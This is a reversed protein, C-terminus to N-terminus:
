DGLVSSLAGGLLSQSQGSADRQAAATGAVEDEGPDAVAGMALRLVRRTATEVADSSRHGATRERLADEVATADATDAGADALASATAAGLLDTVADAGEDEPVAALVEEVSPLADASAAGASAPAAGPGQPDHVVPDLGLAEYLETMTPDYADLDTEVTGAASAKVFYGTFASRVADDDGIQSRPPTLDRAEVTEIEATGAEFVADDGYAPACVVNWGEEVRIEGLSKDRLGPPTDSKRQFDLVARVGSDPTVRFASLSDLQALEGVGTVDQWKGAKANWFEATGDFGPFQEGLLDWLTDDTAGPIGLSHAVGPDLYLDTGIATPADREVEGPPATLFPDYAVEGDVIPEDYGRDGLYNLRADFPGSPAGFGDSPSGQFPLDADSLDNFRVTAADADMGLFGGDYFVGVDAAVVNDEFATFDGFLRLGNTVDRVDNDRVHVPQEGFGFDGVRVGTHAGRVTNDEVVAAVSDLFVGRGPFLPDDVDLDPGTIDNNRVVCDAGGDFPGFILVGADYADNFTIECDTVTVDTANEVYVGALGFVEDPEELTLGTVTVDEVPGGFFDTAVGGPTDVATFNEVTVDSVDEDLFVGSTGGAAADRVTTGSVGPNIRIGQGIHHTEGDRVNATLGEITVDDADVIVANAVILDDPALVLPDAGEAARVTLGPTDVHVGARFGSDSEEQYTGDAVIIEEGPVALEVADNIREVEGPVSLPPDYVSTPGTTVATTVSGEVDCNVFEVDLALLGVADAATEAAIAIEDTLPEDFSVTEGPAVTEGDVSLTVEGAELTSSEALDVTVSELEEVAALTSATAGPDVRRQQTELLVVPPTDAAFEVANGLLTTAEDTLLNRTVQVSLGLSAALVTRGLDDVALGAGSPLGGAAVDALTVADFEGDYEEFFTHFGSFFLLPAPTYLEVFDSLGDVIPHDEGVDYTVPVAVPVDVFADAVTEPDGTAASLQAIAESDAGFQDLYVVGTQPLRTAEAFDAVLEDDGGFNQAVYADHADNEVADLLDDPAVVEPRFRPPLEAELLAVLDAGFGGEAADVVGVEVPGEFVATPGTTVELTEGLGEFDLDLALDGEGDPGTEVTLTVTGSLAADFSVREGVPVAVGDAPLSAGALSLSVDGDHDGGREVTLAELNAVRFEVDFSEGAQIGEPQGGTVDVALADALAFDRTVFGDPVAVTTSRTAFGFAEVSLEYEGPTARLRYRGDAGTEDPFGSLSVTAGPVPNGDGDTVVGTVGSDAAVRGTAELADAIGAGYRTDRGAPADAPKTATTTVAAKTQGPDFSEAAASEMLAVLGAVHPSAMSTGSLEGWQDDFGADAPVSSTVDVGPASVKPVVYSAPWDDPAVLGWDAATDVVEGSSFGAIDRNEDSAGVSLTEFVNGPSGSSGDGSNGASAVVVTGAREANRVPEVFEGFFGTAGLSMNIADAGNDVAWQMAGVIQAFTGSGSPLALGHLLDVDPAVGIHQGSADGGSVTGSVHSGHFDTDHPESGEVQSGDGAFEAWGGPFTPDSPDETFLSLDPHTVDIGTDIVAVKAGAGRTGFADWAEPADIQDLGFTTDGHSSAGVSAEPEPLSFEHNPHVRRVGPQAALRDLDVVGTDVRVVLANVLWLRNQVALGDAREVYDVIPQQSESATAKMEAVPDDDLLLPVDVAEARVVVDVTGGGFASGTAAYVGGGAVGQLVTRRSVALRGATSGHSDAM